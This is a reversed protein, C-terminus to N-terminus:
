KAVDNQSKIIQASTLALINTYQKWTKFISVM